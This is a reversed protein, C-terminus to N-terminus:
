TDLLWWRVSPFWPVCEERCMVYNGERFTELEPDWSPYWEVGRPTVKGLRYGAPLSAFVDCLFSRSAIWRWSYEFQVVDIARRALLGRAGGLVRPDHGEADIKVMTFRDIGLAAAVEDLTRMPVDEVREIASGAHRHMSNVGIGDGVVHLSGTGSTDSLACAHLTIPGPRDGLRRTLIARTGACPEFAQITYDSRGQARAADQFIAIWDGV